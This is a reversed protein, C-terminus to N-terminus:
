EGAFPPLAVGNARAFEEAHMECHAVCVSKGDQSSLLYAAPRQCGGAQCMVANGDLLKVEIASAENNGEEPALM